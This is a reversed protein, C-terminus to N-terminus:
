HIVKGNMGAWASDLQISFRITYKSIKDTLEVDSSSVSDSSSCQIWSFSDFDSGEKTYSCVNSGLQLMKEHIGCLSDISMQLQLSQEFEFENGMNRFWSHQMVEQLTIRNEPNVQVLDSILEKAECSVDKWIEYRFHFNGNLINNYMLRTMSKSQIEPYFPPINSILAYMLVGLSWLDCRADYPQQSKDNSDVRYRLDNALIEPAVYYPTFLAECPKSEERTSFGFDGLMIEMDNVVDDATTIQNISYEDRIFINEPKIDRHIIGLEHIDKLGLVIQKIIKCWHEEKLLNSYNEILNFLEGGRMNEMIIFIYKNRSNKSLKDCSNSYVDIIPVVYKSSQCAMQMEVEKRARPKDPIVKVAYNKWTKVCVCSYVSGNAGCGIRDRWFLRYDDELKTTKIKIMDM